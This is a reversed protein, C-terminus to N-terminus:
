TKLFNEFTKEWALLELQPITSQKIECKIDNSLIDYLAKLEHGRTKPPLMSKFYLEIAFAGNVMAPVSLVSLLLTGEVQKPNRGESCRLYANYFDDAILIIYKRFDFEILKAM